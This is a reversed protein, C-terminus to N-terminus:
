SKIIGKKKLVYQLKQYALEQLRKQTEAADGVLTIETLSATDMARVAVYNGHSVFEFITERGRRRRTPM